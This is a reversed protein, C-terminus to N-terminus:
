NAISRAGSFVRKGAIILSGVPGVHNVISESVSVQPNEYPIVAINAQAGERLQGLKADLGLAEAGNATAMEIVIDASVNPYRECFERMERFMNLEAADRGSSALSDTGLCINVGAKALREYEFKSHGFWASSLPCHVVSMGPKALTDIDGNGLYNVHVLLTRKALGGSRRIHEVPSYEGCDELSRGLEGMSDHLPGVGETFMRWEDESEGVHITVPIEREDAFCSLASLSAPTTTYPSHPSLGAVLAFPSNNTMERRALDLLDGEDGEHFGILETFPCVQLPTQGALRAFLKPVSEINAVTGCGSRLLMQAGDFWASEHDEQTLERKISVIQQVWEAFSKEPTLEGALGTYDLHCHANVFAPFLISNGLDVVPEDVNPQIENVRGVACISDGCMKLAADELVCGKRPWIARARLIM